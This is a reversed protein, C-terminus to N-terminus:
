SAIPLVLKVTTGKDEGESELDIRGGHGQAILRSLYLGIGVGAYGHARKGREFPLKGLKGIEDGPIGIGEDSISVIAHGDKEDLRVRVSGGRPSYKVANGVLNMVVQEVRQQDATVPLTVPLWSEFTHRGEEATTETWRQIVERVVKALDFPAPRLEFRGRGVRSVELLDTVLRDMRDVQREITMVNRELADLDLEREGTRSRKLRARILQAVTKLPTLPTKLEHTVLSLFEEKERETRLINSVDHMTFIAGRIAGDPGRVPDAIVRFTVDAGTGAHFFAYEGRITEGQLVRRTPGHGPQVPVGDITRIHGRLLLERLPPHEGEGIGFLDRGTANAAVLRGTADVIFIAAGAAEVVARYLARAGIEEAYEGPDTTM